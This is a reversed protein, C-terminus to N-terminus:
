EGESLLPSSKLYHWAKGDGYILCVQKTSIYLGIRGIDPTPLTGEMFIKISDIVKYDKIIDRVDVFVKWNNEEFQEGSTHGAICAWGRAGQSVVDYNAYPTYPEWSGRLTYNLIPLKFQGLLTGYTGIVECIDGKKEVKGVAEAPNPSNELHEIRRVLEEFNGDIEDSTLPAKKQYRYIIPMRM